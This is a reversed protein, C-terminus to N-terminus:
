QCPTWSIEQSLAMPHASNLLKNRQATLLHATTVDFTRSCGLYGRNFQFNTNRPLRQHETHYSPKQVATQRAAYSYNKDGTQQTKIHL